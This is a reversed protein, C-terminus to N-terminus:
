SGLAIAQRTESSKDLDCNLCGATTFAPFVYLVLRGFEGVALTNTIHENENRDALRVNRVSYNIM